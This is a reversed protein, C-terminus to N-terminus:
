KIMQSSQSKSYYRHSIKFKFAIFFSLITFNQVYFDFKSVMAAGPCHNADIFTIRCGDLEFTEDIEQKALLSSFFLLFSKNESLIGLELTNQPLIIHISKKKCINLLSELYDINFEVKINVGMVAVRYNKKEKNM